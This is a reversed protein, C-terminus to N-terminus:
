DEVTMGTAVYHYVVSPTEYGVGSGFMKSDPVLDSLIVVDANLDFEVTFEFDMHVGSDLLVDLLSGPDVKILGEVGTTASTEVVVTQAEYRKWDDEGIVKARIIM